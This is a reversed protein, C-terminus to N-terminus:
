LAGSVPLEGDGRWRQDPPAVTSFTRPRPVAEPEPTSDKVLFLPRRKSESYIRGLYEGIVGLFLLNIGGIGVVSVIITAYGPVGVGHLLTQAVVFAAYCFALATIILGLYISARLPKSNFSVIGDIGYNLLKPFSFKSKGAARTANRYSITATDFGIWAFLGKSFRNCEPMSLLADVARRSLLRFDGVGDQLPVDVLRNVARYYLKTVLSRIASEGKRDRRAVVQDYGSDLLPVMRAFLEPPHQLDADIIGVRDGRAHTLGAILAAEKGFNRSLSLVRYAPDEESLRHAEALTADSSGDDVLIVEYEDSVEPLVHQLANRLGELNDQENYCPVVISLDM